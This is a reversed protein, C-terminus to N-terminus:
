NEKEPKIITCPESICYLDRSDYIDEVLWYDRHYDPKKRLSGKYVIPSGEGRLYVRVTDGIILNSNM